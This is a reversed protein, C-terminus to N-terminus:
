LRGERHFSVLLTAIDELPLVFDAPVCKLASAPMLSSKATEPSQVITTGGCEHVVRLGQAGDENAGTLVIALLRERFLAAASEFAVDISPRSYQVLAETSLALQPGRDFLVHYDPPAFYITGPCLSDKDHAERVALACRQAFVEALMSPRARPLHLVVVVSASLAIPLRPLLESLAEVGGASAGIVVAEFRPKSTNRETV